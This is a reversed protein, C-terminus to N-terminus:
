AAVAQRRRATLHDVVAAADHRVGDVFTSSRRTQWHMGVVYLGPSATVGRRHAIAGSADTVPVHLWPFSPRYGTAWVVSRIGARRLDLQDPAAPPLVARIHEPAPLDAGLHHRDVHDDIRRLLRRLRRDAAGISGALDDGLSVRHGHARRVRGTIRVGAAALTGLDLDPDAADGADGAPRGVLQLSPSRRARDPVDEVRDDLMGLRDLWWMVDRGRYRRPLRVHSGAALTVDRGSRRLEDAIQVGSASAGVVLVPGDPLSRPNRYRSAHLQDVAPSLDAAFRPLAPRGCWGTAVVVHRASWCGADTAVLYGGGAVTVSQVSVGTVVPAGFGDAYRGLHGALEGAAMYGDPDDGRYAHGPLRTMWNPTLLRLSDWRESRWREGVRGRELVVHARGAAVLLNSTALGAQGAGIVVTDIQEV